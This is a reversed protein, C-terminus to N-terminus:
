GDGQETGAQLGLTRLLREQRRAKVRRLGEVRTRRSERLSPLPGGRGAALLRPMFFEDGYEVCLWLAGVVALTASQLVAAIAVRLLGTWAPRRPPGVAFTLSWLAPVLPVAFWHVRAVVVNVLLGCYAILLVLSGISATKVWVDLRRTLPTSLLQWDPTWGSETEGGEAMGKGLM